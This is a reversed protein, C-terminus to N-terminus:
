AILFSDVYNVAYGLDELAGITVRSIQYGGDPTMVENAFLGANTWHGEAPDLPISSVSSGKM